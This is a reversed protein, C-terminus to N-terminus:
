LIYSALKWLFSGTIRVGRLLQACCCSRAWWLIWCRKINILCLNINQLCLFQFGSVNMQLASPFTFHKIHFWSILISWHPFTKYVRTFVTLCFVVQYPKITYSCHLFIIASIISDSVHHCVFISLTVHNWHSGDLVSFKVWYAGRGKEVSFLQKLASRQTGWVSACLICYGDSICCRWEPLKM